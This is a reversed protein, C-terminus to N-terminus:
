AVRTLTVTGTVAGNDSDNTIIANVCVNNDGSALTITKPMDTSYTVGTNTAEAYTLQTNLNVNALNTVTFCQPITEGAYGTFAIATTTTSLAESVTITVNISNYIVGATVFTFALALLVFSLYKKNIM